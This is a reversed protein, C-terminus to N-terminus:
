RPRLREDEDRHGFGCRWGHSTADYSPRESGITVHLREEVSEHSGRVDVVDLDLRNRDVVRDAGRDPELCPHTHVRGWEDDGARVRARSKLTEREAAHGGADDSMTRCRYQHNWKCM